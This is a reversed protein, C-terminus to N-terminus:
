ALAALVDEISPHDGPFRDRWEFRVTAGPGLVFTGGQQLIHGRAPGQRFGSLLAALLRPVARPDFTRAKGYALGATKFTLLSPDVLLPGAYGTAARFGLIAEPPASGVVVLGGGLSDILPLATKLGAM